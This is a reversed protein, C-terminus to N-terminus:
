GPATAEPRQERLLARVDAVPGIRQLKDPNIVSRLAVVEGDEIELVFTSVVQDRDDRVIAGPAGNIERVELRGGGAVVKRGIGALLQGVRRAGVIPATWQPAKGGGDGYVTADKALMGALGDVDGRQVADFFRAALERHGRQNTRPTRRDARIAARARTAIKRTNPETKEIMKAVEKLPYGFIDHLLFVAREVPNLRELLLLFAMSLSEGDDTVGSADVFPGDTLLPEPLWLGVYEERRVTASRLHDIALRSITAALYAKLSEIRAGDGLARVYRLWTEQVLDDADAASGLMRYAIGFLLPRLTEFSETDTM